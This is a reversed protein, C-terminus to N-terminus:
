GQPQGAIDNNAGKKPGLACGDFRAVEIRGLVKFRSRSDPNFRLSGFSKRGHTVASSHIQRQLM